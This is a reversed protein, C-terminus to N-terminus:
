PTTPANPPMFFEVKGCGRCLFTEFHTRDVLLEGMNGLLFPWMRTGEHLRLTGAAKMPSACRLCREPPYGNAGAVLPQSPDAGCKNCIEFAEPVSAGCKECEWCIM